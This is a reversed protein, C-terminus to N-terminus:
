RLHHRLFRNWYMLVGTATIAALALGLLAWVVKVAGGWLTGFHLPHMSWLFWDAFSHKEGYHWVSLVQADAARIRVIDRHSFDGPARLDYLLFCEKGQLQPNSISWLRGHPSAAQGADLINDLSRPVGVPAPPLTRGAPSRMGVVPSVRGVLATVQGYWGFYVGSLAWWLVVAFTWFGLASHLDYNIRKWGARLEVRLGRRWKGLGPWWLVLGTGSLVLLIGAGVGNVQMGWSKPLLLYYHLDQVWDLWTRPSAQLSTGHAALLWRTSKGDADMGEFLFAPLVPSPLQLQNIRAAPETRHFLQLAQTPTAAASATAVTHSPPLSARFLEDKFVLVSGSLAIAVLYVAMALGVWLHVQFAARRLM